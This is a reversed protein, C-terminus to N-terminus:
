TPQRYLNANIRGRLDKEKKRKRKELLELLKDLEDDNLDELLNQTTNAQDTKNGDVAYQKNLKDTTKQFYSRDVSNYTTITTKVSKHGLLAQIVKPNENNEFLMNSYTHRLGHFHIGYKDLKNSKLFRELISKTGSYSRM